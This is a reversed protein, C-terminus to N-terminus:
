SRSEACSVWERRMTAQQLCIPAKALVTFRYSFRSDSLVFPSCSCSSPRLWASSRFCSGASSRGDRLRVDASTRKDTMTVLGAVATSLDAKLLNYADSNVLTSAFDLRPPGDSVFERTDPNYLGQTAAFAIQEVKNMEATADIVRKLALLEDNSFGQSKMLDAVSRKNGDKPISHKIRGAIM